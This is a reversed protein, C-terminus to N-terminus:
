VPSKRVNGGSIGPIRIRISEDWTNRIIKLSFPISM